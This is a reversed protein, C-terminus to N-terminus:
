LLLCCHMVAVFRVDGSIQWRKNENVNASTDDLYNPHFYTM